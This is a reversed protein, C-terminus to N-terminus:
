AQAGHGLMEWYPHKLTGAAVAARGPARPLWRFMQYVAKCDTVVTGGHDCLSFARAAATCEAATVSEGPRLWGVETRWGGLEQGCIGFGVVRIAPDKPHRGSGDVFVLPSRWTPRLWQSESQGARWQEVATHRLAVGLRAQSGQLSRSETNCSSRDFRDAAYRPCHWWVHEVTEMALGCLCRGDHGQWHRTVARVVMDGVIASQYAERLGGAPMRSALARTAQVDISAADELGRRRAAVWALDAAELGADMLLYSPHKKDWGGAGAIFSAELGNGQLLRRFSLLPGDKSSGTWVEAFTEEGWLRRVMACCEWGKRLAVRVPDAGKCPLVLHMYLRVQAFRSGRYTAHVVWRRLVQLFDSDYVHAAAGFLGAKLASGSALLGLKARPVGLRGILALRDFAVRARRGQLEKGHRGAGQAVGLDKLAPVVPLELPPGRQWRQPDSDAAVRAVADGLQQQGYGRAPLWVGRNARLVEAAEDDPPLEDFALWVTAAALALVDEV